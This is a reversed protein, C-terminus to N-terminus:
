VCYVIFLVVMLGLYDFFIVIVDCVFVDCGGIFVVVDNNVYINWIFQFFDSNYNNIQYLILVVILLGVIIVVGGVISVLMLYLVVLWFKDIWLDYIVWVIEMIILFLYFIGNYKVIGLFSLLVGGYVFGCQLIVYDIIMELYDNYCFIQM